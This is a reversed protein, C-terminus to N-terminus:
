GSLFRDDIMMNFICGNEVFSVMLIQLTIQFFRGVFFITSSQPKGSFWINKNGVLKTMPDVYFREGVFVWWPLMWCDGVRKSRLAIQKESPKEARRAARGKNYGMAFLRTSTHDAPVPLNLTQVLKKSTALVLTISTYIYIWINILSSWM